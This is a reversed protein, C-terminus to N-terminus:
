VHDELRVMGNELFRAEGDDTRRVIGAVVGTLQIPIEGLYVLSNAVAQLKVSVRDSGVEPTPLEDVDFKVDTGVLGLQLAVYALMEDLTFHYDYTFTNATGLVTLSDRHYHALVSGTLRFGPRATLLIETNYWPDVPGVYASPLGYSVMAPTLTRKPNAGKIAMFLNAEATLLPDVLIPNTVVGSM